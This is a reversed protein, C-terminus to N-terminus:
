QSQGWRSLEKAYAGRGRPPAPGFDPELQAIVGAALSQPLNAAGIDPCRLYGEGGLAVTGDQLLVALLLTCFVSGSKCM